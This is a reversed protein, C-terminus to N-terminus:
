TATQKAKIIQTVSDIASTELDVFPFNLLQRTQSNDLKAGAPDQDALEPDGKPLKGKLSDFHGNLINLLKQATFKESYLLLRKKNFGNEFAAVHAKAVDRVDVFGGKVDPLPSDPQLKLLKNIVEASVNLEEKVEADFAQPGFVYVPNIVNLTYEPKENEYFEWAAKEAFKKSGFYGAFPNAKAEDWTIPSWSEENVTKSPDNIQALDALAVVSSTVVVHKYQPGHKQIASLVNKTGEVAPILLDAEVDTTTFTVPSATHLFVTAESHKKVVDDFAGSTTLSPVVEFTFNESDFLKTVHKGKEASRVTGVVKYGKSLLLKITHQAIFGTAGSVLVTTPM